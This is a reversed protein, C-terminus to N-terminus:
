RFLREAAQRIQILRGNTADICAIELIIWGDYGAQRLSEVVAGWDIVGEGPPLHDDFSGRNDCAHVHILRSGAVRVFEAWHGGLFTHSTDLCVGANTDVRGLLWAFETPDGGILHPLPSEIALRLGMQRCSQALVALGGAAAELRQGVDLSDRPVDSPHVVVVSGGLERLVSAAQLIGGIAASRHHPNPDSLDLIGGFPAHISVATTGARRLHDSVIDVQGKQWPDFHKPPTGIEVAHFGAEGFQRLVELIPKDVCGGTAIGIRWSV